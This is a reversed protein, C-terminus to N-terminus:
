PKLSKVLAHVSKLWAKFSEGGLGTCGHRLGRTASRLKGEPTRPGTQKGVMALYSKRAINEKARSRKPCKNM